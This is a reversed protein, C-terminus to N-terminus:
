ELVRVFVCAIVWAAAIEETRLRLENARGGLSPTVLSSDKAMVDRIDAVLDRQLVPLEQQLNGRGPRIRRRLGSLVETVEGATETSVPLRFRAPGEDDDEEGSQLRRLLEGPTVVDRRMPVP